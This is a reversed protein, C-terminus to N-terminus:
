SGFSYRLTFGVERPQSVTGFRYGSPVGFLTGPGEETLQQVHDFLNKAFLTLEWGAQPDRVGVFLNALTYADATYGTNLTTVEGSYNVLGRVFGEFRGVPRIYESGVSFSWEPLAGLAGSSECLSVIQGTQVRRPGDIDPTGDGNYDNCPILAKDFHADTYALNFNATWDPTLAARAEVEVGRSVGDGNFTFNANCDLGTPTGDSTAYGLGSTAPTATCAIGNLRGIFNTFSQNYATLNLTLRRDFLRSKLGIEYSDSTEEEYDWVESPLFPATSDESRGGPRFGRGYSAYAMLDDNFFHQYSASGTVADYESSATTVGALSSDTVSDNETRSYRLGVQFVDRETLNFAHNTFLGINKTEQEGLQVLAAIPINVDSTTESTSYYAGLMYTWFHQGRRELRLEHSWNENGIAIDQTYQLGPIANAIDQDRFTDFQTNQYGGIYSLRQDAGFDYIAGLTLLDSENAFTSPGEQLNVRDEISFDGQYDSGYVAFYSDTDSEMHQYVLDASFADTPRWSLSGRGSWTEHGSERGANIAKVGSDDGEDYLAAVRVALTDSIPGGVAGQYNQVGNDTITASVQGDIGSFSPRRTTILIAGSPSARGRLTGQPGRVVEIQGVDYISQFATAADLVTENFYIDVTASSGADLDAAVGRVSAQQQRGDRNTLSLGPTLTAIDKFELIAQKEVQEATVVNVTVPVTQVSAAQKTATVVIDGVTAVPETEQPAGEASPPTEQALAAGAAFLGIASAAAMLIPKASKM